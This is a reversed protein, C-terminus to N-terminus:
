IAGVSAASTQGQVAQLAKKVGSVLINLPNSQQQIAQQRTRADEIHTQLMDIEAALAAIQKDVSTVREDDPRLGCLQQEKHKIFGARREELKLRDISIDGIENQIAVYQERLGNAASELQRAKLKARMLWEPTTDNM